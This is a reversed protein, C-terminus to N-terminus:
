YVMRTCGFTKELIEKQQKLPYFRYKYAKEVLQSM